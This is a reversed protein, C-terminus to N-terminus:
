SQVACYWMIVGVTVLEEIVIKIMERVKDGGNDDARV